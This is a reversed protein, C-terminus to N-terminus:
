MGIGFPHTFLLKWGGENVIENITGGIADKTPEPLAQNIISGVVVGGEYAITVLVFKAAAAKAVLLARQWRLSSSFRSRAVRRSNMPCHALAKSFGSFPRIRKLSM